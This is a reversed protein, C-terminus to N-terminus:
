WSETCAGITKSNQVAKYLSFYIYVPLNQKSRNVVIVFESNGFAADANPEPKGETMPRNEGTDM